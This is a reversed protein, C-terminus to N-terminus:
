ILPGGGTPRVILPRCSGAGFVREMEATFDPLMSKPLLTQIAGAFGGGHVRWAGLGALRREALALALAVSREGIDGSPFTNELRARSSLGSQLMYERYLAMDGSNLAEAQLPVRANEEFFHMARLLARDPLRARLAPLAEMFTEADCEGLVDKGLAAAVMRMEEPVAAYEATM